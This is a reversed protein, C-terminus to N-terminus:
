EFGFPVEIERGLEASKYMSDIMKMRHMAGEISSVVGVNNSISALFHKLENEFSKLYLENNSIKRMLPSIDIRDNGITKYATLPSLRAVGNEGFFELQMQEKDSNLSWSVEYALVINNKFRLLGISSDEVTKTRHKFNKISVTELDPYNLSWVALDLLLIGLDMLVGGGSKEQELVWNAQSSRSKIWSAKIYFIEGLDKSNVFSKLLMTDPRFRLNMGVMAIRKNEDAIKKIEVAERLSKTAPKEILIHKGAKLCNIAIQFHTDTPTTIIVAEIEPNQTMEKYDQFRNVINFKDAVMKLQNKRLESVAVIEINKMNKLLPFYRLQAISGLGIIGIKTQTM